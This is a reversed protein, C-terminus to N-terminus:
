SEHAPKQQLGDHRAVMFPLPSVVYRTTESRPPIHLDSRHRRFWLRKSGEPSELKVYSQFHRPHHPGNHYPSLSATFCVIHGGIPEYIKSTRISVRMREARMRVRKHLDFQSYERCIKSISKQGHKHNRQTRLAPFVRQKDLASSHIYCLSLHSQDTRVDSPTCSHLEYLNSLEHAWRM